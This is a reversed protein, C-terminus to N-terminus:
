QLKYLYTPNGGTEGFIKGFDTLIEGTKMIEQYLSSSTAWVNGERVAKFDALLSNKAIMEEVSHIEGGITCNYIIIDANKANAYFQEPELTVSSSANDEGWFDFVNRGGALEIMKTIYDGSKRTVVRGASSIYFFAATKREANDDSVASLEDFHKKQENYLREGLEPCGCIRAYVKIWECRGLPHPEYSSRDVFVPIGLEELKERVDPVHESMTSQVSLRCGGSLLMEYDPDRYKGAYVMSGSQMASVADQIYWDDAELASFRIDGIRDLSDFFCMVASAAMYINKPSVNIVTVGDAAAPKKEGEPLVLLKDGSSTEIMSGGNAYEYITFCEATDNALKQPEGYEATYYPDSAAPAQGCGCLNAILVATLLAAILKKIM